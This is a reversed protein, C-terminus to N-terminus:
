HGDVFFSLGKRRKSSANPATEDHEDRGRKKKSSKDDRNRSKRAHTDADSEDDAGVGASAASQVYSKIAHGALKKAIRHQIEQRAETTGHQKFRETDTGNIWLVRSWFVPTRFAFRVKGEFRKFAFAVLDPQDLNAQVARKFLSRAKEVENHRLEFQIFDL